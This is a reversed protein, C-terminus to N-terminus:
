RKWGNELYIDIWQNVAELAPPNQFMHHEQEYDEKYVYRSIGMDQLTKAMDERYESAIIIKGKPLSNIEELSHCTIGDVAQNKLTQNKDLFGQIEIGRCRLDFLLRRGYRGAGYIYVSDKELVNSGYGKCQKLKEVCVPFSKSTYPLSILRLLIQYYFSYPSGYLRTQEYEELETLFMKYMEDREKEMYGSTNGVQAPHCRVGNVIKDMFVCKEKRLVRFLFEYDQITFLDERFIGYEKFIDRHLLIGGFQIMGHIVPFVGSELLDKGYFETIKFSIKRGNDWFFDCPAAVIRSGTKQITEIQKEIKDPYFVDDHSLWAFYEGRMEKIGLNLATSVKGNEKSFYRIKSGYSLSIQETKGEDNSGDNVVIIECNSYTQNLASDIAERLYDAGNFVPIVVSVLPLEECAKLMKM